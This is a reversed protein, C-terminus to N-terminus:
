GKRFESPTQGVVQKFRHSFYNMDSFGVQEAVEYIKLQSTQLLLKARNLREQILYDQFNIGIEKKILLSLYNPSFGLEEALSVLTLQPDSIRNQIAKKLQSDQNDNALAQLREEQKKVFLKQSLHSLMESVDKKSFPKLLFDDAGLKLASLAYDFEDYGTLFVIHCHPFSTKTLKALTIGDIKPMNIDTLLIDPAQEQILQWAVFGNEAERVISINFHQYDILHKLGERVLYEDEVILLSFMPAGKM